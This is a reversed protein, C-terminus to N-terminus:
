SALRRAAGATTHPRHAVRRKMGFLPWLAPVRQVVLEYAAVTAGISGILVLGYKVGIGLDLPVVVFAIMVIATQHLLYVPFASPALWGLARNSVRLRVSAFGILAVVLSFGTVASLGRDIFRPAGLERAALMAVFAALGIVAARRWESEAARELSSFRALAFGYLLFLSYYSFNAWDDVLNQFGPWRERLMIQVLALPLIGLYIVPSRRLELRAGGRALAALIPLYLLSFTVLYALFWLHSWTVNDLTYYRPLFALFTAHPDAPLPRGATTYFQGSVLEVWRIPPCLVLMGFVLPVFLKRLRESVFAGAGRTALSGHASWGALVFFLPMHWQHIFGTLVDLSDSLAVNKISYFPRVDFVKSTHFVFLLYTAFVRLWDVDPRRTAIRPVACSSASTSSFTSTLANM